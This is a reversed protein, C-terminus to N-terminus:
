SLFDSFKEQLHQVKRSAGWDEYSQIAKKMHHTAWEADNDKANVFFIACREHSLARDQIFGNRSATPTQTSLLLPDPSSLDHSTIDFLYLSLFYAFFFELSALDFKGTSIARDFEEKADSSKGKAFKQEAKLLHLYHVVNVDGGKVLKSFMKVIVNGRRMLSKANSGGERALAYCTLAEFLKQRIGQFFAPYAQEPPDLVDAIELARSYENFHYALEM